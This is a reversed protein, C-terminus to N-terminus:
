GTDHSGPDVSETVRERLHMRWALRARQQVTIAIRERFTVAFGIRRAIRDAVDLDDFAQRLLAGQADVEAMAALVFVFAERELHPAEAARDRQRLPNRH